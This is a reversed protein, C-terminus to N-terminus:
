EDIHKNCRKCVRVKSGDERVQHGVRTPADCSPCILMVNSVHIPGPSEVIGAQRMQQTQRVARKMTNIGDVILRQTRPRVELVRGRRPKGKVSRDKGAIVLVEDGKKIHMKISPM